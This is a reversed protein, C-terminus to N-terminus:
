VKGMGLCLNSLGGLWAVSMSLGDEHPCWYEETEINKYIVHVICAGRTDWGIAKVNRFDWVGQSFDPIM